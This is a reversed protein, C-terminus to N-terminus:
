KGTYKKYQREEVGWTILSNIIGAVLCVVATFILQGGLLIYGSRSIPIGWTHRLWEFITLIGFIVFLLGGSIVLGYWVIFSKLGKQHIKEWYGIDRPTWDFLKKLWM